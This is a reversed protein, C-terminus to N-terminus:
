LKLPRREQVQERALHIGAKQPSLTARICMQLRKQGVIKGEGHEQSVAVM